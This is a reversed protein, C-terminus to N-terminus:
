RSCPFFLRVFLLLKKNHTLCILLSNGKVGTNTKNENRCAACDAKSIYPFKGIYAAFVAATCKQQYIKQAQQEQTKGNKYTFESHAALAPLANCLSEIYQFRFTCSPMQCFVHANGSIVQQHHEICHNCTPHEIIYIEKNLSIDHGSRCVLHGSNKVM